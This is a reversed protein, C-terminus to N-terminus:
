YLSEILGEYKKTISSRKVKLTATVEGDEHHLRKPLIAFRKITEV